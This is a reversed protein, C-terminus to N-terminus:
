CVASQNTHCQGDLYKENNLILFEEGNTDGFAFNVENLMSHPTYKNLFGSKMKTGAWLEDLPFHHEFAPVKYGRNKLHLEIHRAFCSGITFISMNPNISFSPSISPLVIEGNADRSSKDPWKSFKNLRTTEFAASADVLNKM